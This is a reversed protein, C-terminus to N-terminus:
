KIHFVEEWPQPKAYLFGQIEDCGYSNIINCEEKTEVGECIVEFDVATLMEIIAKTVKRGKVSKIGKRAFIGDLKIVDAPISAIQNLSSYGSGFDDVSIRFGQARLQKVNEEVDEIGEILTSETIELEIMHHPINYLKAFALVKDSFHVNSFGMSSINVSIPVIEKGEEVLRRQIQFVKELMIGDLKTVMGNREINPVFKGPSIITGDEAQIRALAEAGIMVNRSSSYKPQLYVLLRGSDCASEFMRSVKMDEIKDHFLKESYVSCKINFNGKAAKKALHARDVAQRSDTVEETLFYVGTYVHLFVKPYKGACVAEFEYNKKEIYAVEEERSRHNLNILMRFQDSGTRCALVCNSNDICFFHAMERLFEDGVSIGYFDNFYRFNSVDIIIMVYNENTEKILQDTERMFDDVHMLGTIRDKEVAKVGKHFKKRVNIEIEM